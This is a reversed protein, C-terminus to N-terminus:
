FLGIDNHFNFKYSTAEFLVKIISFARNISRGTTDIENALVGIVITAEYEWAGDVFAHHGFDLDVAGFFDTSVGDVQFVVHFETQVFFVSGAGAPGAVNEANATFHGFATGDHVTEVGGKCAIYGQASAHGGGGCQFASVSKGQVVHEVTADVLKFQGFDTLGGFM